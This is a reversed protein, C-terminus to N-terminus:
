SIFSSFFGYTTLTCAPRMQEPFRGDERILEADLIPGSPQLSASLIPQVTQEPCVLRRRDIAKSM